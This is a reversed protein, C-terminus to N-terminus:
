RPCTTPRTGFPTWISPCFRLPCPTSPCCRSTTPRPVWNTNGRGHRVPYQDIPGTATRQDHSKRGFPAIRSGSDLKDWQSGNWTLRSIIGSNTDLNLDAGSNGGGIRPDSSNVYIVPQQATGTVLIGTVLRTNVAPNVAGQDDHNPISQILTIAEQNAVSYSNPGNRTVEYALILGNQQAVYLRGDPGFQLSTPRTAMSAQLESKGFSIDAGEYVGGDFVDGALLM